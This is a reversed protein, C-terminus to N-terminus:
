WISAHHLTACAIAYIILEIIKGLALMQANKYVEQVFCLPLTQHQVIM